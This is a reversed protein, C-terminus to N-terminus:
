LSIVNLVSGVIKSFDDVVVTITIYSIPAYMLIDHTNDYSFIGSIILLPIKDSLSLLITISSSILKVKNNTPIKMSIVGATNINVGM